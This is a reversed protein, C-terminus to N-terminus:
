RRYRQADALLAFAPSSQRRSPFSAGAAPPLLAIPALFYAIVGHGDLL